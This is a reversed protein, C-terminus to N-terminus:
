RSEYKGYPTKSKGSYKKIRPAKKIHYKPCGKDDYLPLGCMNCFGSFEEKKGFSLEKNM